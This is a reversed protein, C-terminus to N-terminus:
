RFAVEWIFVSALTIFLVLLVLYDTASMGRAGTPTEPRGGAQPVGCKFCFAADDPLNTGCARCLM